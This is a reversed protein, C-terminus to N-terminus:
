KRLKRWLTTRNIGLRVAARSYNYKEEQLIRQISAMEQTQLTDGLEISDALRTTASLTARFDDAEICQGPALLVTREIISALERVNGSWLHCELLNYASEAICNVKPNLASHKDLFAKALMRIDERRERLPPIHLRLIDLRYYLDSRFQREHILCLLDQNTAAIVRIDIPIIRDGGLRMVEREQLVRLIRAQLALPMEGIEDLFITGGHALEFL